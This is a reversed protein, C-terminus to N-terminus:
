QTDCVSNWNSLKTHQPFIHPWYNYM